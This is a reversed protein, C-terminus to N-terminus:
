ANDRWGCFRCGLRGRPDADLPTGDIPCAVPPRTAEEAAVEVAEAAISLLQEWSM